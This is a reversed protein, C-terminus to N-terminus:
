AEITYPERQERSRMASAEEDGVFDEQEPDWTLKRQLLMAINALHCASVSRHHTFVDSIPLEGSKVCHFFNEMHSKLPMGRYLKHVEEDLWQRDQESAEIEEVPEGTLSGRNVRIKGLEGEILLENKGSTLQIQSGNAFDM